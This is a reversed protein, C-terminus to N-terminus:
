DAFEYVLHNLRGFLKGDLSAAPIYHWTTVALFSKATYLIKPSFEALSFEHRIPTPPQSTYRWKRRMLSLQRQFEQKYLANRIAAAM